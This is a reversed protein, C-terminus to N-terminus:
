YDEVYFGTRGHTLYREKLVKSIQSLSPLPLVELSEMEKKIAKVSCLLGRNYLYLRVYEITDDIEEMTRINNNM